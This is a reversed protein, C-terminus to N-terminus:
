RDAATDTIAISEFRGKSVCFRSPYYLNALKAVLRYEILFYRFFLSRLSAITDKATAKFAPTAADILAICM